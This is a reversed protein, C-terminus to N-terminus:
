VNKGYTHHGYPMHRSTIPGKTNNLLHCSFLLNAQFSSVQFFFGNSRVVNPKHMPPCGIPPMALTGVVVLHLTILWFGKHISLIYDIAHSTGFKHYLTILWFGKHIFLVYDIAHSTGFKHYLTILWFGKHIFLVYDIAHSTEFKHYLTILWFGKHIFLVYDIWM